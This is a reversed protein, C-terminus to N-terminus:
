YRGGPLYHGSQSAAQQAALAHRRHHHRRRHGHGPRAQRHAPQQMLVPEPLQHVVPHAPGTARSGGTAPQAPPPNGDGGAAGAGVPTQAPAVAAPAPATAAHAVTPGPVPATAAHTPKPAPAPTVAAHTLKPAPGPGGRGAPQQTVAHKGGAPPGAAAHRSGSLRSYVGFALVAVLGLVVVRSLWRGRPRYAPRGPEPAVPSGARHLEDYEAILPGSDAGVAKAIGRIDARAYFDGGCGCYDDGEIAKIVAERICTQESVQAVTLGARQRAEALTEGIPVRCRWLEAAGRVWELLPTRTIKVPMM